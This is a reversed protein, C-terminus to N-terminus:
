CGRHNCNVGYDTVDVYVEADQPICFPFKASINTAEKQCLDFLRRLKRIEAKKEIPISFIGKGKCHLYSFLTNTLVLFISIYRKCQSHLNLNYFPKNQISQNFSTKSFFDYSKNM